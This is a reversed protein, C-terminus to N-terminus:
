RSAAPARNLSESIVATVVTVESDRRDAKLGHGNSHLGPSPGNKHLGPWGRGLTIGIQM